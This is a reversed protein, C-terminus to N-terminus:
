CEQCYEDVLFIAWTYFKLWLSSPKTFEKGLYVTMQFIINNYAPFTIYKLINPLCQLTIKEKKHSSSTEMDVEANLQSSLNANVHFPFYKKVIIHMAIILGWTNIQDRQQKRKAAVLSLAPLQSQGYVYPNHSLLLFHAFSAWGYRAVHKDLDTSNCHNSM